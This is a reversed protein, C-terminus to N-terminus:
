KQIKLVSSFPTARGLSAVSYGIASLWYGLQISLRAAIERAIEEM